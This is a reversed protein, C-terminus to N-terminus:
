QQNLKTVRYENPTIKHYKKFFRIYSRVDNYGVQESIYAITFQKNQLLELSRTIRYENLYESLTKQTSSKFLRNLYISSIGVHSAIQPMTIPESYHVELYQIAQQIYLTADDSVKNSDSSSYILCNFLINECESISQAKELKSISAVLFSEPMKINLQLLRFYVSSITIKCYRRMETLESTTQTYQEAFFARLEKLRINDRNIVAQTMKILFASDISSTYEEQESFYIPNDTEKEAFLFLRQAQLMAHYLNPVKSSCTTIGFVPKVSLTESTSIIIATCIKYVSNRLHESYDTNLILAIYRNGLYLGYCKSIHSFAEEANKRVFLMIQERDLHLKNDNQVDNFDILVLTFHQYPFVIGNEEYKDPLNLPNEYQYLLNYLLQEQILQKNETSISDKNKIQQSMENVLSNLVDYEDSESEKNEIFSPLGASQLLNDVPRLMIITVYYSIVFSICMAVIYFLLCYLFTNLYMDAFPWITLHRSITIDDDVSYSPNYVFFPTSQDESMSSLTDLLTLDKFSVKLPYATSRTNEILKEVYKLPLSFSVYGKASTEFIPLRHIYTLYTAEKETYNSTAGNNILWREYDTSGIVTELFDPNHYDAYFYIGKQSDYIRSSEELFLTINEYDYISSFSSIDDIMRSLQEIDPSDHNLLLSVSPLSGVFTACSQTNKLASELTHAINMNEKEIESVLVTTKKVSFLIMLLLCVVSVIITMTHFLSRFHKSKIIKKSNVKNKM